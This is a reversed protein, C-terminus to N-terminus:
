LFPVFVKTNLCAIGASLLKLKKLAVPYVIFPRSFTEMIKGFSIRHAFVVLKWKESFAVDSINRVFFDDTYGFQRPNRIHVSSPQLDLLPQDPM